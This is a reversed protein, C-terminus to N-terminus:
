KLIIQQFQEAFKEVGHELSLHAQYYGRGNKGLQARAEPSMRALTLIAECLSDVAEPIATIGCNAQEILTAANGEVAMLIPKGMHMYAQTKSPITVQFLPDNKLHVLLVDATNLFAGIEQMPLRTIFRVNTLNKESVQQKLDDVAVGAGIFVFSIDPRISYLKEAADIVTDLGQAYGMNGAFVLTFGPTEPSNETTAPIKLADEDCWNYIVEIKNANVGQDILRQKFGPSLVVIADMHRYIRRCLKGIMALLKPNNLMGTAALTDPWLDQIDYVVPIKRFYRLCAATLGTTLPPHYAYIIDPRNKTSLGYILSSLAFSLYNAIRKLASRDHNPYLPLRTISVGDQTERQIWKLRYGPYLKGEPYNPFGTVVEVEFGQKVLARAFALGKVVPEPDFWQTLLMIKIAM